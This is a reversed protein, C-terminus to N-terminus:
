ENNKISKKYVNKLKSSYNLPVNLYTEFVKQSYIDLIIWRAAGLSGGARGGSSGGM